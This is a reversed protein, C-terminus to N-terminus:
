KAHAAELLPGKFLRLPDILTLPPEGPFFLNALAGRQPARSSGLQDLPVVRIKPVEECDFAALEGHDLDVLILINPDKHWGTLGLLSALSYATIFRGQFRLVGLVEASAMPVPIVGRLRRCAVLRDLAVACKRAGVPFEAMWFQQEEAATNQYARLREARRELTQLDKENM